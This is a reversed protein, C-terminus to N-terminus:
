DGGRVAAVVAGDVKASLDAGADGKVFNGVGEADAGDGGSIVVAGAVGPGTAEGDVADFEEVAWGGGEAGIVGVEPGVAQVEIAFVAGGGADAVDFHDGGHTAVHADDGVGIAVADGVVPFNKVEAIEGLGGGSVGIAVSDVVEVFVLGVGIGGGRDILPGAGGVAVPGSGSVPGGGGGGVASGVVGAVVRLPLKEDIVRGVRVVPNTQFLLASAVVPVIVTAFPGCLM